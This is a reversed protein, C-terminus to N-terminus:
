SFGIGVSQRRQAVALLRTVLLASKLRANVSNRRRFVVEPGRWTDARTSASTGSVAVADREDVLRPRVIM